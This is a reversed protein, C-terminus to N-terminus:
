GLRALLRSVDEAQLPRVLRAVESGDKLVILTPWLKVRFARGLAKGPADYVKIHPLKSAALAAQIAPEANECHGGWPVGFELIAPGVLGRVQDVTPADDGYVPNFGLQSSKMSYVTMYWGSLESFNIDRM